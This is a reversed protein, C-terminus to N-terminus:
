QREAEIVYGITEKGVLSPAIMHGCEKVVYMNQTVRAIVNRAPVQATSWYCDFLIACDTRSTVPQAKEMERLHGVNAFDHQFAIRPISNLHELEHFPVAVTELCM